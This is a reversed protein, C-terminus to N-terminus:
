TLLGEQSHDVVVMQALTPSQQKLKLEWHKAQLIQRLAAAFEIFVQM